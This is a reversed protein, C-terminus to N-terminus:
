FEAEIRRAFASTDRTNDSIRFSAQIPYHDSGISSLVEGTAGTVGQAFFHDIQVAVLPLRVPWTYSLLGLKVRELDTKQLPKMSEAWISSNLDGAVIVPKDSLSAFKAISRVYVSSDFAYSASVPPLPHAVLLDFNSFELVGLPIARPSPRKIQANFPRKSYVAIGFSDPRSHKITYPYTKELASLGALWPDTVETLAIIDPDDKTLVALATEHDNNSALLNSSVIHVLGETDSAGLEDVTEFTWLAYSLLAANFCTLSLSLALHKRDFFFTLACFIVSAALANPRFHNFLDFVWYLSSFLGLVSCIALVWLSNGIYKALSNKRINLSIAEANLMTM